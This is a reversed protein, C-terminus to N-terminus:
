KPVLPIFETLVKFPLIANILFFYTLFKTFPEYEFTYTFKNYKKLHFINLDDNWNGYSSLFDYKLIKEQNGNSSERQDESESKEGMADNKNKALWKKIIRFLKIIPAGYFKFGGGIFSLCSKLGKAITKIKGDPQQDKPYEAYIKLIESKYGKMISSSLDIPFQNMPQKELFTILKGFENVEKGEKIEVENGIKTGKAVIIKSGEETELITEENIETKGVNSDGKVIRKTGEEIVDYKLKDINEAFENNKLKKWIEPTVLIGLIGAFIPIWTYFIDIIQVGILEGLLSYIIDKLFLYFMPGILGIFLVFDIDRRIFLRLNAFLKFGIFYTIVVITFVFAKLDFIRFKLMPITSDYWTFYKTSISYTLTLTYEQTVNTKFLVKIQYDISDLQGTRLSCGLDACNVTDIINKPNNKEYLTFNLTTEPLKEGTVASHNAGLLTGKIDIITASSKVQYGLLDYKHVTFNYYKTVISETKNIPIAEGYIEPQRTVNHTDVYTMLGFLIQFVVSILFIAVIYGNKIEFEHNFIKM